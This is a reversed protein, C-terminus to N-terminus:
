ARCPSAQRRDALYARGAASRGLEREQCGPCIGHTARELLSSAIRQQGEGVAELHLWEGAIEFRGCWSCRRLSVNGTSAQRLTETLDILLRSDRQLEFARARAELARRVLDEYLPL